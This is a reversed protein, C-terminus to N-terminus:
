LSLVAVVQEFAPRLRRRAASMRAPDLRPPGPEDIHSCDLYTPYRLEIQLAECGPSRGYHRTIFGGAFPENRSVDFGQARLAREFCDATSALCSRGRRDGICVDHETPGMFSHLDLLLVRGFSALTEDLVQRLAAHYPAHYGAVVAAYNRPADPALYIPAGDATNRAILAQFFDGYVLGDPDRNLDVVYRSHTAVVTAIGLRPLFDYLEPLYWDTNRLWARHEPTFLDGIVPPVHLGSHPLSAVVPLARGEPRRVVFLDPDRQSM